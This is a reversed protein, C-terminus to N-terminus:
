VQDPVPAAPDAGMAELAKVANDIDALAAAEQDAPVGATALADALATRAAALKAAIVNTAANLRTVLADFDGKTAM